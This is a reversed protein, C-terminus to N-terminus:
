LFDADSKKGMFNAAHSVVIQSYIDAFKLNKMMCMYARDLARPDVEVEKFKKRATNLATLIFASLSDDSGGGEQHLKLPRLGEEEHAAMRWRIASFGTSLSRIWHLMIPIFKPRVSFAKVVFTSGAPATRDGQQRWHQRRQRAQLEAAQQLRHDHLEQREIEPM